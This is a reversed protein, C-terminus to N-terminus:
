EDLLRKEARARLRALVQDGPIGKGEDLQKLGIQIERRLIDLEEPTRRADIEDHIDNDTPPPLGQASRKETLEQKLSNWADDWSQFDLRLRLQEREQPTLQDVLKIVQDFIMRDPKPQAM